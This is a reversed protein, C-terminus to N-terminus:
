ANRPGLDNMGLIDDSCFPDSDLTLIPTPAVARTQGARGKRRRGVIGSLHEFVIGLGLDHDVINRGFGFLSSYATLHPFVDRGQFPLHKQISMILSEAHSGTGAVEAPGTVDGLGALILIESTRGHFCAPYVNIGGQGIHAVFQFHDSGVILEAVIATQNQDPLKHTEHVGGSILYRRIALDM